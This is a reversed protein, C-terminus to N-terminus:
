RVEKPIEWMEGEYSRMWLLQGMETMVKRYDKGYAKKYSESINNWTKGIDSEESLLKEAKKPGIGPVGQINDVSDGTLIQLQMHRIGEYTSVTSKEEKRFNYKDGPVMWLDKDITCIVTNDKDKYQAIALTDDAEEGESVLAGYNNVLYDRVRQYYFPRENKRNGKYPKTVAVEKRFNDKGSLHVEMNECDSGKLITKLFNDIFVEM